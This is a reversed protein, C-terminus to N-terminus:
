SVQFPFLSEVDEPIAIGLGPVDPPPFLLGNQIRLPEVLFADRLPNPVVSCEVITCNPIAFAAHYNAMMAVGGAWSHVAVPIGRRACMEAAQRFRNIGGIYSADPQFLDVAGAELYGEVEELSTVEEGSAIPIDTRRRLEAMEAMCDLRLPQELFLIDFEEISRVTTLAEKVTRSWCTGDVALGIDPGIVSRCFGVKKAAESPDLRGIRIKVSRFGDDVAKELEDKLGEPPQDNGGSAYVPLSDHIRGGLLQYVPVGMAKARLDWLAIELGSMVQARLGSQKRFRPM